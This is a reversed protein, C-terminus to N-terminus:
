SVVFLKNVTEILEEMTVGHLVEKGFVAAAAGPHPSRRRYDFRINGYRLGGLTENEEIIVSFLM